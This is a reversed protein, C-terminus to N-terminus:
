TAERGSTRSRRVEVPSGEAEPRTEAEYGEFFEGFGTRGLLTLLLLVNPDIGWPALSPTPSTTLPPTATPAQGAGGLLILPLLIDEIRRRQRPGSSLLSWLLLTTLNFNM